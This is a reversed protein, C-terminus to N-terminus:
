EAAELTNIGLAEAINIVQIEGGTYVDLEAAIEVARKPTNGMRLAAVAYDAGSGFAQPYEFPDPYMCNDTFRTLGSGDIVMLSWNPDKRGKFEHSPDAGRNHWEVLADFMAIDGAIAYIRGHEVRLKRTQMGCRESGTCALGDAAITVGDTAITTM